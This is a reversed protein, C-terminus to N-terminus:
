NGAVEGNYPGGIALILRPPQFEISEVRWPQGHLKVYKITHLNDILFPDAIISIESMLNIDGNISQSNHWKKSIRNLDGGYMKKAIVTEWVGPKTEETKAYGIEGYFKAM